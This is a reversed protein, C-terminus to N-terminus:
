PPSSGEQFHWTQAPPDSVNLFAASFALLLCGSLMMGVEMARGCKRSTKGEKDRGRGGVHKQNHDVVALSSCDLGRMM